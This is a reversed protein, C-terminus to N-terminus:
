TMIEKSKWKVVVKRTLLSPLSLFFCMANEKFVCQMKRSFMARNASYGFIAFLMSLICSVCVCACACSRKINKFVKSVHGNAVVNIACLDCVQRTDKAYAM